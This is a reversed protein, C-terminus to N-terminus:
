LQTVRQQIGAKMRPTTGSAQTVAFGGIKLWALFEQKQDFGALAELLIIRAGQGESLKRKKQLTKCYNLNM